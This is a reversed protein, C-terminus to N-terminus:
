MKAKWKLPCARILVTPICHGCECLWIYIPTLNPIRPAYRQRKWRRKCWVHDSHCSNILQLVLLTKQEMEVLRKQSAIEGSGPEQSKCWGLEARYRNFHMYWWSVAKLSNRHKAFIIKHARDDYESTAEEMTNVSMYQLEPCNKSSNMKKQLGSYHLIEDSLWIMQSQLDWAKNGELNIRNEKRSLTRREHM